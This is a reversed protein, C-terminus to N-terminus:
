RPRRECGRSHREDRAGGHGEHGHAQVRHGRSRDLGEGERGQGPGGRPSFLAVESAMNGFDAACMFGGCGAGLVAVKRITQM